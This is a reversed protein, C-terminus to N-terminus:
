QQGYAISGQLIAEPEMDVAGATKWSVAVAEKYADAQTNEYATTTEEGLYLEQTSVKLGGATNRSHIFTAGVFNSASLSRSLSYFTGTPLTVQGVSDGFVSAVTTTNTTDLIIQKVEWITKGSGVADVSPVTDGYDSVINVLTLIDGEQWEPDKLLETSLQGITTITVGETVRAILFHLDDQYVACNTPALSGKSMIYPAIVPYDYNDFAAKSIAPARKVNERMFANYDSEVQRKNEFAFKYLAQTGRTYFKVAAAFRARQFCQKLTRPNAPNRNRAKAIQQGNIQSFTVDGVSGRSKGLLMNGKAM